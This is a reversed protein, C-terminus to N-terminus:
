KVREAWGIITVGRANSLQLVQPWSLHALKSKREHFWSTQQFTNSFSATLLGSSDSLTMSPPQRQM